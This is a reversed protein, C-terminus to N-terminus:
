FSFFLIIYFFLFCFDIFTLVPTRDDCSIDLSIYLPELLMHFYVSCKGKDSAQIVPASAAIATVGCIGTGAAILTGTDRDIGLRRSLYKATQFATGVCILAMVM